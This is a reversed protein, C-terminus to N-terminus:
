AAGGKTVVSRWWSRLQGLLSNKEREQRLREQYEIVAIADFFSIPEGMRVKDSLAELLDRETTMTTRESNAPAEAKSSM